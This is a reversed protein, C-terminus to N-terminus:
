LIVINWKSKTDKMKEFELQNMIRNRQNEFELRKKAREQQSRFFLPICIQKFIITFVINHIMKLFHISQGPFIYTLCDM